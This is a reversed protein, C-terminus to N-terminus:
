LALTAGVYDDRDASRLRSHFAVSDVPVWIDSLYALGVRTRIRICDYTM